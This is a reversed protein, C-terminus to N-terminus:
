SILFAHIDSHAIVFFFSPPLVCPQTSIFFLRYSSLIVFDYCRRANCTPTLVDIASVVKIRMATTKIMESASFLLTDFDIHLPYLLPIHILLPPPNNTNSRHRPHQPPLAAPADRAFLSWWQHMGLLCRCTHYTHHKPQQQISM